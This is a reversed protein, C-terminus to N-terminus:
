WAERDGAYYRDEEHRTARRASIIRCSGESRTTTVVFLVRNFALGIVVTREEGYFQRDDTSELREPDELALIADVFDVSHKRLNAAAKNADWEYLM